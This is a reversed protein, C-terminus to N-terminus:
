NEKYAHKDKLLHHRHSVNKQFSCGVNLKDARVLQTQVKGAIYNLAISNNQLKAFNHKSCSFKKSVYSNLM